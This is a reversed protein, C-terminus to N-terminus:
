DSVNNQASSEPLDCYEPGLLGILLHELRLIKQKDESRSFSIIWLSCDAMRAQFEEFGCGHRRQWNIRLTGGTNRETLHQPIRDKLSRNSQRNSPAAGGAGVYIVSGCRQFAYVGIRDRLCRLPVLNNKRGVRIISSVQECRITQQEVELEVYRCFAEIRDQSFNHPNSLAECFEM